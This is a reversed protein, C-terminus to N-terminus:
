EISERALVVTHDDASVILINGGDTAIRMTRKEPTDGKSTPDILEENTKTTSDIKYLTKIGGIYCIRTYYANINNNDGYTTWSSGSSYNVKIDGSKIGIKITKIVREAKLRAAKMKNDEFSTTVNPVIITMLLGIIAIVIVIEMLTFGKASKM